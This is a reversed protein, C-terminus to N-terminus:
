TPTRKWIYIAITFFIFNAFWASLLPPLVELYGLGTFLVFFLTYTIATITTVGFSLILGGKRWLTSLPLALLLMILVSVPRSLRSYWDVEYKYTPIGFLQARKLEQYFQWWTKLEQPLELAFLTEPPESFPAPIQTIRIVQQEMDKKPFLIFHRGDELLWKKQTTNWWIYRARIEDIRENQIRHIVVDRGTLAERNFRLIHCTWGGSLNTWSVGSKTDGLHYSFYQKELTRFQSACWGGLTDELFFSGISLLSAVILASITIRAFRIGGSLLATIEGEQASRGWVLFTTLMVSASLFHYQFFIKPMSLLYYQTIIFFPINYKRVSEQRTAFFDVLIYLFALAIIVRLFTKIWSSLFYRDITKM